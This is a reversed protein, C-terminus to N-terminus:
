ELYDRISNLYNQRILQEVASKRAADIAVISTIYEQPVESVGDFHTFRRNNRNYVGNDTIISSGLIVFPKADSFVDRGPLFRSDFPLGLLNLVTPLM